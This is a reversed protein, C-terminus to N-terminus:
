NIATPWLVNKLHNHCVQLIHGDINLYDSKQFKEGEKHEGWETTRVGLVLSVSSVPRQDPRLAEKELERASM